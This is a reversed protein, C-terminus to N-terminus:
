LTIAQLIRDIYPYKTNYKLDKKCFIHHKQLIHIIESLRALELNIIKTCIKM